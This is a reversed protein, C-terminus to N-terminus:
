DKRVLLYRIIDDELRLKDNINKAAESELELEYFLFLGDTNKDIPNALEIKGWEDFKATKGKFTDILKSLKESVSKKKAASAEGPLVITLEYTNM